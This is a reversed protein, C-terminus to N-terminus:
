HRHHRHNLIHYPPPAKTTTTNRTTLQIMKYCLVCRGITQPCRSGHTASGAYRVLAEGVVCYVCAGHGPWWMEGRTVM